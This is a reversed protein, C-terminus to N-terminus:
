EKWWKSDSRYTRRHLINLYFDVNKLNELDWGNCFTLSLVTRPSMTTMMTMTRITMTARMTLLLRLRCAHQWRHQSKLQDTWKSLDAQCSWFSQPCSKTRSKHQSMQSVPSNQSDQIAATKRWTKTAQLICDIDNSPFNSINLIKM